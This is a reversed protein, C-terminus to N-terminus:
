SVARHAAAHRYSAFSGAESVELKELQGLVFQPLDGPLYDGEDRWSILAQRLKSREDDPMALGNGSELLRLARECPILRNDEEETAMGRLALLLDLSRTAAKDGGPNWLHGGSSAKLWARYAHSESSSALAQDLTRAAMEHKAQKTTTGSAAMPRGDSGPVMGYREQLAKRSRMDLHVVAARAADPKPSVDEPLRQERAWARMGNLLQADATMAAGMEKDIAGPRSSLAKGASELRNALATWNDEDLGALIVEPTPRDDIREMEDLSDRLLSPALAPGTTAHPADDRAIFRNMRLHDAHLQRLDRLTALADGAKNDAIAYAVVALMGGGLKCSVAQRAIFHNSINDDADLDMGLAAAARTMSTLQAVTFQGLVKDGTLLAKMSTQLEALRPAIRTRGAEGERQVLEACSGAAKLFSKAFAEPDTVAGRSKLLQAAHTEFAAAPGEGPKPDRDHAPAVGAQSLRSGRADQVQVQRGDVPLGGQASASPM